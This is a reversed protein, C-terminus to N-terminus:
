RPFRKRALLDTDGQSNARERVLEILVERETMLDYITMRRNDTTLEDVTMRNKSLIDKLSDPAEPHRELYRFDGCDTFQREFLPKPLPAIRQRATKEKKRKVKREEDLRIIKETDSELWWYSMTNMEKIQKKTLQAM